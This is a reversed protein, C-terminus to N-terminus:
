CRRSSSERSSLADSNRYGTNNSAKIIEEYLQISMKVKKNKLVEKYEKHGHMFAVDKYIYFNETKM